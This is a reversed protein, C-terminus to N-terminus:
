TYVRNWDGLSTVCTRSEHVANVVDLSPAGADAAGEVAVPECTKEEPEWAEMAAVGPHAPDVLFLAHGIGMAVQAVPLALTKYIFQRYDSFGKSSSCGPITM